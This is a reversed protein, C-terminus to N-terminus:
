AMDWCKIANVVNELELFALFDLDDKAVPLALHIFSCRDRM